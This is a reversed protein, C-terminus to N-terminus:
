VVSKRDTAVARSMVEKWSADTITPPVFKPPTPPKLGDNMANIAVILGVLVGVWVVFFVVKKKNMFSLRAVPAPYLCM